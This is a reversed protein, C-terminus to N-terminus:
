WGFGLFYEVRGKSSVKTFKLGERNLVAHILTFILWILPLLNIVAFHYNTAAIDKRRTPSSGGVRLQWSLRAGDHLVCRHQYVPTQTSASSSHQTWWSKQLCKPSRHHANGMKRLIGKKGHPSTWTPSQLATFLLNYIYTISWDSLM